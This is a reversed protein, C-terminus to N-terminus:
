VPSGVCTVKATKSYGFQDIYGIFVGVNADMARGNSGIRLNTIPVTVQGGGTLAVATSTPVCQICSGTVADGDADCYPYGGTVNDPCSFGYTITGGTGNSFVVRNPGGTTTVNYSQVVIKTPDSSNCVVGGQPTVAIFFLIGAVIVIIVLAWGYTMLYELAAQGKSNM